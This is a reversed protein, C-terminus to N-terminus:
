RGSGPKLLWLCKESAKFCVELKQMQKALLTRVERLEALERETNSRNKVERALDVKAQALAEQLTEMKQELSSCYETLKSERVLLEEIKKGFLDTAPTSESEPEIM